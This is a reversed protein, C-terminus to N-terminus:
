SHLEHPKPEEIVELSTYFNKVETLIQEEQSVLILIGIAVLAQYIEQLSKIMMPDMRNTLLGHRWM